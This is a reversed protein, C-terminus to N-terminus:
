NQRLFKSSLIRLTLLIGSIHFGSKGVSGSMISIAVQVISITKYKVM